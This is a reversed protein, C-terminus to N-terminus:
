MPSAESLLVSSAAAAPTPSAVTGSPDCTTCYVVVPANVGLFPAVVFARADPASPEPDAGRANQSVAAFCFVIAFASRVQM